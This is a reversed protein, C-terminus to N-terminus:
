KLMEELLQNVLQPNAKGKSARMVQGVLFGFANTKGARFDSVSKENEALVDSVIQRISDEDSIQVLGLENILVGPDKGTEFVASLVKKGATQSITGKEILSILLVLKQATLKTDEITTQIENLLKSVDGLLWNSVAKPNTDGERVCADFFRAKSPDFVIQEADAFPLGLVEFNRRMKEFPLEPISDKANNFWTDDIVIPCLDPDPFYRYEFADEKTRLITNKGKIDDWRRTEQEVSGGSEILKIQRKYEYEIAREAASFSNVNKMEVRTGLESEGAKRVSVNIDCRISGEQMKCDSIGLYLLTLRINELFDKAQKSSRLDPDTVIEILPVGCRNYDVLSGGLSDDHTLKGADEEIHIRTIGCKKLEGESYFEFSGNACVPLDFQSIQYAKPLDPYFYNKRDSRCQRNIKCHLAMGMKMCYDVVTKNLVPLVGPFGMCVPCCNTNPESGFMNQCSCFIKTKTNLEAHVELGIVVEYDNM